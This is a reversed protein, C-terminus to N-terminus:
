VLAIITLCLSAIKKTRLGVRQRLMLSVSTRLVVKEVMHCYPNKIVGYGGVNTQGIDPNYEQTPAPTPYEPPPPLAFVFNVVLLLVSISQIMSAERNNFSETGM